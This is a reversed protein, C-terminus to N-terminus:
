STKELRGFLSDLFGGAWKNTFAIAKGPLSLVVERQRHHAARVIRRAVAEPSYMFRQRILQKIGTEGASAARNMETSTSSPCFSTITIGYPRLESRLAESLGMLAFKSASYVAQRPIGRKGLISAVNVIHGGGQARFHPLTEKICHIAGILNVDIIERIQDMAMEGLPAIYTVGANNVLVDIKGWRETTQRVLEKVQDIQRVDTAVVLAEGGQSEIEERREGLAKSERAALAVKAGRRSFEMATARGIGRSAGTVIVVMDEM